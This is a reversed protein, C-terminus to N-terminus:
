EFTDSCGRVEAKPVRGLIEFSKGGWQGQDVGRIVGLDETLISHGPYSSPLCSIVQILGPQGDPVLELTQPNRILVDAFAPCHLFGNEDEPFVSGVQEVMGYFNRVNAPVIGLAKHLRDKFTVNNVQQSILKKWGGSHVLTGATFDAQIGSEVLFQWIMFTFGFIFVPQGAYERAFAEVVKHDLKFDDDLAYVPRRGFVSMGLIGAGRASFSKRDKIVRKSDVVLMPLRKPGLIETFIHSLARTQLQATQRDLVVRSPIQGTTGSSTLVKFVDEQPVSQLLRSKFLSVPLYPLQSLGETKGNGFIEESIKQYEPSHELHKQHLKWLLSNLVQEKQKQQFAFAPQEFIYEVDFMFM